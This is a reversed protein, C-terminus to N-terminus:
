APKGRSALYRTIHEVNACDALSPKGATLDKTCQVRRECHACTDLQQNLAPRGVNRQYHVPDVGVSVLLRAFLSEEFSADLPRESADPAKRTDRVLFIVLLFLLAAVTAIWSWAYFQALADLVSM